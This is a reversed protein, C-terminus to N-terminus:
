LLEDLKSLVIEVNKEIDDQQDSILEIVKDDDGGLCERAEDLITQFIEAQINESIKKENYGRAKLRDYLITNNTRCVFICNINAMPVLDPEICEIMNSRTTDKLLPEMIQDLKDEDIVHTELDQDYGSTCDNEIAFKSLNIFEFKNNKVLESQKVREILTSKGTGPTGCVLINVGM